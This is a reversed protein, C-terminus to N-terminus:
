GEGRVREIVPAFAEIGDLTQPDLYVMLHSIGERRYALLEEAIQEPSGTLPNRVQPHGVAGPLDFGVLVAATRALTAPDRGAARCAADVRDRLPPIGAHSNGTSSFFVNWADAQEAILLLMREGSSGVLIPPGADRPGRPRLECERATYYRGEFDIRGERLLTRIITLAEAFRAVRHDYPLGLMRYESELWGAGLGLVLRGGSIEDVTDAVKALLAPNRFSTPTVLPGIEVRSTVAALAALLSWCEWLGQASGGPYELVFHDITWLSDFGVEEARRALALLDSWRATGGGFRGETHPLMMGLKLPQSRADDM